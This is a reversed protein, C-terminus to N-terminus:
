ARADSARECYTSGCAYGCTGARLHELAATAREGSQKAALADARAQDVAAQQRSAEDRAEALAALLAVGCAPAVPPVDAAM